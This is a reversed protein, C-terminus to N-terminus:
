ASATLFALLVFGGLRARTGSRNQVDDPVDATGVLDSGSMSMPHCILIVSALSCKFKYLSSTSYNHLRTGSDFRADGVKSSRACLWEPLLRIPATDQSM